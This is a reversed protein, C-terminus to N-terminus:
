APAPAPGGDAVLRRLTRCDPDADWPERLLAALQRLRDHPRTWAQLLPQNAPQASSRIAAALLAVGNLLFVDDTLAKLKAMYEKNFIDGDKQVIAVAVRNAGGFVKEYDRYVQMYPHKLPVMKNFGADVTLRSASAAFLVTAVGFVALLVKRNGFVFNSVAQILKDLM